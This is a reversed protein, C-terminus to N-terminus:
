GLAAQFARRAQQPDGQELASNGFALMQQAEKTKERQVSLENQLYSQADLSRGVAAVQEQELQLSGTWHRVHWKEDLYVRWTINELPLSNRRRYIWTSRAGIRPAQSAASFFEVPTPQGSRAQQELPILVQDGERWPWVGNQNVFAFWFRAGPPLTLHLLRKDGPLLELRVQTLM